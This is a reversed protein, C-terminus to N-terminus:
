RLGLRKLERDMHYSMRRIFADQGLKVLGTSEKMLSVKVSPGHLVEIPKRSQGKRRFFVKGYKTRGFGKQHHHTKGGYAGKAGQRKTVRSGKVSHLPISGKSTVLSAVLRTPTARQIVFAKRVARQTVNMEEATERVTATRVQKIADNLARAGAREISRELGKLSRMVDDFETKVSIEIM